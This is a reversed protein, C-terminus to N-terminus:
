PLLLPVAPPAGAVCGPAHGARVGAVTASAGMSCQGTTYQTWGFSADARGAASGVTGYAFLSRWERGHDNYCFTSAYGEASALALQADLRLTQRAQYFSEGSCAGAGQESRTTRVCGVPVCATEDAAAHPALAVASLLHLFALAARMRRSRFARM